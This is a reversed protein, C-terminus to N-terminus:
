RFEGPRVNVLRVDSLTVKDSMVYGSLDQGIRFSVSRFQLLM